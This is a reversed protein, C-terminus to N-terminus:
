LRPNKKGSANEIKARAPSKWRERKNNECARPPGMVWYRQNESMRFGELNMSALVKDL